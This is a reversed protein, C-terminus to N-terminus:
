HTYESWFDIHTYERWCQRPSNKPLQIIRQGLRSVVDRVARRQSKTKLSRRTKDM